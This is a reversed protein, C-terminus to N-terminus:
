ENVARWGEECALGKLMRQAFNDDKQFKLKQYVREYFNQRNKLEKACSSTVTLMGILAVTSFEQVNTLDLSGDIEEFSKSNRWNYVTQYMIMTGHLHDLLSEKRWQKVHNEVSLM